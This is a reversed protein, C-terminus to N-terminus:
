VFFSQKQSMDRSGNVNREDDIHLLSIRPFLLSARELRAPTEVDISEQWCNRV